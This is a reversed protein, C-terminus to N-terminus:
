TGEESQIIALAETWARNYGAEIPSIPESFMRGKIKEVLTSVKRFEENYTTREDATTSVSLGGVVNGYVWIRDPMTM